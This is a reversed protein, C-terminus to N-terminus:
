REKKNKIIEKGLFPILEEMIFILIAHLFNLTFKTNYLTGKENSYSNCLFENLIM